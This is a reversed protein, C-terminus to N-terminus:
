TCWFSGGVRLLGRGIAYEVLGSSGNGSGWDLERILHWLTADLEPRSGVVLGCVGSVVETCSGWPRGLVSM